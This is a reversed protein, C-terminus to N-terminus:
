RTLAIGLRAHSDRLRFDDIAEGYGTFAQGFLYIGLGGLRDLPYSAFLEAGGRGTGPNGRVVGSLKLGDPRFISARLAAHGWYRDLDRAAGRQGVYVWAQPALEARWGGGLDFGQAVGAYLRNADISRMDGRGNSDHRYGVMARTAPGIPVDAYVEPSYTTARFPGSPQEIAWFMTQTWAFRLHRLAGEDFPRFAFSVQLKAGADGLGFAGYVPEHPEFRDVLASATGAATAALTEGRPEAAVAAVMPSPPPAPAAVAVVGAALYRVRAFGRAAIAAPAAEAPVLAIRSGDAATVEIRAPARGPVEADSENLLYVAVGQRAASASAPQDPVARLQAAAPTALM